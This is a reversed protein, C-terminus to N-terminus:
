ASPEPRGAVPGPGAPQASCGAAAAAPLGADGPRGQRAAPRVRGPQPHLGAQPEGSRERFVLTTPIQGDIEAGSKSPRRSSPTCRTSCPDRVPIARSSSTLLCSKRRPRPESRGSSRRTDGQPWGAARRRRRRQRARIWATLSDYVQGEQPTWTEIGARDWYVTGDQQTFAWGDILTGPALGLKKVEVELRVWKGSPPLDGIRLREPTGDKGWGIVNQGWYARHSWAGATHWQLMIEKPPNLPDLFVQAFLTDGEGVKLKRGANDFFRQKLGQATIRLSSQGSAVPHDPRTVFEWPGDGQPSAGQPVADDIWVFDARQVVEGQSADAKADYAAAAKVM